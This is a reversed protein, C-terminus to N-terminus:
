SAPAKERQEAELDRLETELDSEAEVHLRPIWSLWRPFWWNRDGLLEMTAPVLVVRVITADLFIAAAFSIGFLKLVRDDGLAFSAFVVVMIAAAATIVRATAALGDAVALANDRSRDYEERIRSLLFVEYDMSLGFVVAFLMMPVFPEIPGTSQLGLVGAFWGWQFIAVMVGYAAAISLLNVLVAKLPVLLSRFVSMLLLFSLGLVAGMFLPLRDGLYESVDVGGATIGGVYVTADTGRTAAPIVDGRLREILEKTAESQPSTTPTVIIVAANGNPGPFVPSVSAVGRADALRENLEALSEPGGPTDAAVVLPGNTGPGFGESILDYARRVTNSRPANGADSFGLRLSFFPIAIILLVALGALAATWPRKQVMRSWRFWVSERTANERRHLFPISFRDINHGVFGLLAPVLTASAAMTILVSAAAGAGLGAIFDVGMLFLGFLSVVVTAGAFLVARGATDLALVTAHEPDLGDHLGQRYRTVIFLAYDIGVGLGLMAGLQTTFDPMTFVNSLLAIVAFAAGIGFLATGIPLGMALLSGFAILLVFVAALLGIAETGSDFNPIEFMRGGVEVQVGPPADKRAAEAIDLVRQAVSEPVEVARKRLQIDAYAIEGNESIQRAGEASFPSTTGTVFRVGEIKRLTDEFLAEIEPRPASAGDELIGDRARVVLQGADGAREPFTKTLLDQAESSETGDIKFGERYDDGVQNGAISLGVVAILWLLLTVRRRRYCWRAMRRLM